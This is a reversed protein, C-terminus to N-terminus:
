GERKGVRLGEFVGERFGVLGGIKRGDFRGTFIRGEETEVSIGVKTFEAGGVRVEACRCNLCDRVSETDLPQEARFASKAAWAAKCSLM